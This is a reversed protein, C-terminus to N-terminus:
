KRFDKVKSHQHTEKQLKADHHLEISVFANDKATVEIIADNTAYIECVNFGDVMIKVHGGFAIVLRPNEVGHSGSVFVGNAELDNRYEELISKEPFRFKMCHEVGKPTKLLNIFDQANNANKTEELGYGCAGDRTVHSMIYKQLDTNKM